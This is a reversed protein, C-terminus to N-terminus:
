GRNSGPHSCTGAPRGPVELLPCGLSERPRASATPSPELYTLETVGRLFETLLMISDLLEVYLFLPPELLDYLLSGSTDGIIIGPLEQSAAPTDRAAYRLPIPLEDPRVQDAHNSM